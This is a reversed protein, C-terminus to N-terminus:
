QIPDAVEVVASWSDGEVSVSKVRMLSTGADVSRAAQVVAQQAPQLEVRSGNLMDDLDFNVQVERPNRYSLQTQPELTMRFRSLRLEGTLGSMDRSLIPGSLQRDGTVRVRGGSTEVRQFLYWAAQGAPRPVAAVASTGPAPHIMYLVIERSNEETLVPGEEEAERGGLAAGHFVPGLLFVFLMVLWYIYTKHM